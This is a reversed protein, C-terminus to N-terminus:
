PVSDSGSWRKPRTPIWNSHNTANRSLGTTNDDVGIFSPSASVSLAGTPISALPGSLETYAEEHRGMVGLAMGFWHHTNAYRPNLEIAREFEKEANAFDYDFHLQAWALSSHAESLSSDGDLAKLALKKAKGFLRRKRLLRRSASTAFAM